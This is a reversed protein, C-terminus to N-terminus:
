LKTNGNNEMALFLGPCAISPQALALVWPPPPFVAARATKISIDSALRAPMLIAPSDGGTEV